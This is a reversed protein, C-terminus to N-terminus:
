AERFFEIIEAEKEMADNFGLEILRRCYSKEFLLLSLVTSSGADRIFLKLARPLDDFHESAIENLNESPTIDLLQIPRMRLARDQEALAEPILPVMKNYRRLIESDNTLTDVFASNLIHALIQTLSPHPPESGKAPRPVKSSVGV